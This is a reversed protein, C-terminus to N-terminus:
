PLHRNIRRLASGVVPLHHWGHAIVWGRLRRVGVRIKTIPTPRLEDERQGARQRLDLTCWLCIGVEPRAGLRVLEREDFDRRLVLM